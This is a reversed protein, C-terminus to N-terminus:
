DERQTSLRPFWCKANSCYFKQLIEKSLGLGAVPEGPLRSHNGAASLETPTIKNWTFNHIRLQDSTEYFAFEELYDQRLCALSANAEEVAMGSQVRWAGLDTGWIIRDQYKTFFERVVTGDHHALDLTRAATDVAFNPHRDLRRALGVLDREHSGLHAGVVQLKPYHMLIRDRAALIEEYSPMDAGRNRRSSPLDGHYACRGSGNRQPKWYKQPDGAHIVVTVEANQLYSFIPTLCPDDLQMYGGSQTRVELGINKWFKCAVAGADLDKKLGEIVREAYDPDECNPLDFSTCWAYRDPHSDALSRYRDAAWVGESRWDKSQVAIAINILKLEMERLFAASQPVDGPHHTHADIREMDHSIESDIKRM